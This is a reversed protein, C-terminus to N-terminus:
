ADIICVPAISYNEVGLIGDVVIEELLQPGVRPDLEDVSHAPLLGSQLLKSRRRLVIHAGLGDPPDVIGPAPRHDANQTRACKPQGSKVSISIQDGRGFEFAETPKADADDAEAHAM